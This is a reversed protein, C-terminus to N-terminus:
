SLAATMHRQFAPRPKISAFWRELNPMSPRSIQTIRFWRRAFCGLGIDAITFSDGEAFTRGDLHRELIQWIEATDAAAKQLMAEDRQAAPTRVYGWFVLREAPQLTSLTWDLWRDVSARIQPDTPYLTGDAPYAMALYRMVSNSEWLQFAGDEITPVKGNPNMALYAPQDNVGFQMGADVRDYALGLEDCCWLVKQVNVSNNRGWIKLM